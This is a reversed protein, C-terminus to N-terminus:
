HRNWGACWVDFVGGDIDLRTLRAALEVGDVCRRCLAISKTRVQRCSFGPVSRSFDAGCDAAFIHDPNPRSDRRAFGDATAHFTDVCIAPQFDCGYLCTWTDVSDM